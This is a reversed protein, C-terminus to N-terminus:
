EAADRVDRVTIRGGSGTGRLGSIDVGLEEAKNLAARTANASAANASEGGSAAPLPQGGNEKGRSRSAAESMNTLEGVLEPNDDVSNLTRNIISDVNELRAKLRAVAEVGKAELNVTTLSLNIGVDIELLESLRTRLAVRAKLDDVELNLEEVKVVPVDLLVDPDAQAFEEGSDEYGAQEEANEIAPEEGPQRSESRRSGM